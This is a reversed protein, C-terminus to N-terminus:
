EGLVRAAIAELRLDTRLGIERQALLSRRKRNKPGGAVRAKRRTARVRNASEPAKKTAAGEAAAAEDLEDWSRFTM